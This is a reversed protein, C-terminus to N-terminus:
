LRQDGHRYIAAIDSLSAQTGIVLFVLGAGLLSYCELKELQWMRVQRSPPSPRNKAPGEEEDEDDDDQSGSKHIRVTQPQHEQEVHRLFALKMVPPILLASSSGALAGALSILAQVNPVVAAVAFTLLVLSARLQPSDGPLVMKPLIPNPFSLALSLFSRLSVVDDAAPNGRGNSDAGDLNHNNSRGNQISDLTVGNGSSETEHHPPKPKTNGDNDDDDDEYRHEQLEDWDWESVSVAGYEPLPQLPEFGTLDKEEEEEEQEAQDNHRGGGCCSSLSCLSRQSSQPPQAQAQNSWWISLAPAVLEVAPYLQLPYTLLVSLSVALNALLLLGQLSQDNPFEQVLFATISGNTVTGFAAVCVSSFGALVVAVLTMSTFFVPRFYQQSEEKKMASEIPLVLCIGEFSYLIACLALPARPAQFSAAGDEITPPRHDWQDDVVLGLLFLTLLLLVTAVMMVTSLGKLSPIFSLSLFLPLALTMVGVHSELLWSSWPLTSFSGLHLHNWVALINEGVFSIFVTCIALQQTCICASVYSQFTKGYAWEGVDPYTIQTTAVSSSATESIGGDNTTNTTTHLNTGDEPTTPNDLRQREIFRKLRVVTWCNYSSRHFPLLCFFFSFSDCPVMLVCQLGLGFASSAGEWGILSTRDRGVYTRVLM